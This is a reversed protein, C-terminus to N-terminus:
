KSHLRKLRELAENEIRLITPNGSEWRRDRYISSSEKRFIAHSHSENTKITLVEDFKDKGQFLHYKGEIPIYYPYQFFDKPNLMRNPVVRELKLTKLIADMDAPDIDFQFMLDPHISEGSWIFRLNSVSKPVPSALNDQFRDYAAYYRLYLRKQIAEVGFCGTSSFAIGFVIVCSVKSVKPILLGVIVAVVHTLLVGFVMADIVQGPFPDIWLLVMFSLVFSLGVACLHFGAAKAWTSGMSGQAETM